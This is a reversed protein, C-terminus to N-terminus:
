KEKLALLDALPQALAEKAVKQSKLQRIEDGKQIILASVEELSSM